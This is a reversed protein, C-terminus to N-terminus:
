AFRHQAIPRQAITISAAPPHGPLWRFRLGPIGARPLGADAAPTFRYEYQVEVTSRRRHSTGRSAPPCLVLGVHALLTHPQLLLLYLLLNFSLYVIINCVHGAHSECPVSLRQCDHFLRHRLLAVMRRRETGPSARSLDVTCSLRTANRALPTFATPVERM